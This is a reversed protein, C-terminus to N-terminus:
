QSATPKSPVSQQQNYPTLLKITFTTAKGTHKYFYFREDDISMTVLLKGTPNHIQIKVGKVHNLLL